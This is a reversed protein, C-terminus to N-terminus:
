ERLEVATLAQRCDDFMQVGVMDEAYGEFASV